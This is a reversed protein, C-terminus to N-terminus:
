LVKKSHSIYRCSRIPRGPKKNESVALIDCYIGLTQAKYTGYIKVINIFPLHFRITFAIFKYQQLCILSESNEKKRSDWFSSPAPPSSHQVTRWSSWSSPDRRSGGAPWACERRYITYQKRALGRHQFILFFIQLFKRLRSERLTKLVM